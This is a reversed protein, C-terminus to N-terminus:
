KANKEATYVIEYKDGHSIKESDVGNLMSEGNKNFGWYTKTKDYDAEIGNVKKVYMGYPGKEGSILKHDILAEGLTDKDTHITFTITKDETVLDVTVTTDGKGLQTDKTYKANQWLDDVEAEKKCSVFATVMMVIMGLCLICTLFKKM